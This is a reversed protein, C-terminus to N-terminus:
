TCALYKKAATLARHKTSIKWVGPTKIDINAAANVITQVRPKPIVGNSTGTNNFPVTNNQRDQPELPVSDLDDTRRLQNLPTEFDAVFDRNQTDPIVKYNSADDVIYWNRFADHKSVSFPSFYLTINKSEQPKIAANIAKMEYMCGHIFHFIYGDILLSGGYPASEYKGLEEQYSVPFLFNDHCFFISYGSSPLETNGKNKLTLIAVSQPVRGVVAFNTRVAYKVGLNNAIKNAVTLLLFLLINYNIQRSFALVSYCM